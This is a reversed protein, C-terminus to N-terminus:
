IVHIFSHITILKTLIVNQRNSSQIISTGISLRISRVNHCQTHTTSHGTPYPSKIEQRSRTHFDVEFSHSDHFPPHLAPSPLGEGVNFLPEIGPRGSFGGHPQKGRWFIGDLFNSIDYPRGNLFNALLPIRISKEDTAWQSFSRKLTM